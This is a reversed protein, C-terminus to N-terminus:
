FLAKVPKGEHGVSFPRGSPSHVTKEHPLGLAYGLTANFDEVSVPDKEVDIAKKDSKGYVEGGRVGGGALLTSFAGPHHDRGARENIRPTRGFETALVVLTTDLLGRSDLDSLLTALAQDLVAGKQEIQTFNNSHTDWGGYNVEVYRVDQEVLRRALLCGQGFPNTGYAKRTKEPEKFINFVELDKSNMLDIADAYLDTYSTVSKQDYKNRFPKDYADALELRNYFEEKSFRLQSNPLGRRASGIPIPSYRHKLFGAGVNAGGGIQVAGPLTEMEWDSLKLLWSGLGPHRITGRMKYGTHMYYTGQKHAGTTTHLSNIITAKDMQKALNQFAGGLKVGSVNTSVVDTDGQVETGPKPDLTDVHSMGGGMYLYIVRSAKGPSSEEAKADATAAPWTAGVGLCTKALGSVFQRRSVDDSEPRSRQM